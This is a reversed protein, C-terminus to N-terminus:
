PRAGARYKEYSRVFCDGYRAGMNAKCGQYIAQVNPDQGQPAAPGASIPAYGPVSVTTYDNKLVGGATAMAAGVVFILVGTSGTRFDFKLGHFDGSGVGGGDNIGLVIFMMGISVVAFGIQMVSVKMIQKNIVVRENAREAALVTFLAYDDQNHLSPQVSKLLAAPSTGTLDEQVSASLKSLGSYALFLLALPVVVGLLVIAASHTLRRVVAPAEPGANAM